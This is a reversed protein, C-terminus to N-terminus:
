RPWHHDGTQRFIACVVTQTQGAEGREVVRGKATVGARWGDERRRENRLDTARAGVICGTRMAAYTYM